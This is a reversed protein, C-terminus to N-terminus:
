TESSRKLRQSKPNSQPNPQISQQLDTIEIAKSAIYTRRCGQRPFPTSSFDLPRIVPLESLHIVQSTTEILPSDGIGGIVLSSSGILMESRTRCIPKELVQRAFLLSHFHCLM